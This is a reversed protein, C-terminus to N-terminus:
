LSSSQSGRNCTWHLICYLEADNEICSSHPHPKTDTFSTAACINRLVETGPCKQCCTSVPLPLENMSPPTNHICAGTTSCLCYFACFVLTKLEKNIYVFLHGVVAKGTGTFSTPPLLYTTLPWPHMTTTSHKGKHQHQVVICPCVRSRTTAMEDMGWGCPLTARDQPKPTGTVCTQPLSPLASRMSHTCGQAVQQHVWLNDRKGPFCGTDM